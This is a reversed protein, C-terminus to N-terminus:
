NMKYERIRYHMRKGCNLCKIKLYGKEEVRSCSLEPYLFRKCKRCFQRRYESPIRVNYRMGIKRALFVYRDALTKRKKKAATEAESFLIKIRARALKVQEIPKNRGRM